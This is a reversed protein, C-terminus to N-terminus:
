VLKGSHMNINYVTQGSETKTQVFLTDTVAFVSHLGIGFASTPKLWEPMENIIDDHLDTHVGTDIIRKEVDDKSIGTGNDEIVFNAFQESDDHKVKIKIQYYDFVHTELFDYPQIKKYDIQGDNELHKM